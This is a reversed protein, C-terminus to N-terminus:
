REYVLKKIDIINSEWIKEGDLSHVNVAITIYNEKKTNVGTSDPNFMKYIESEKGILYGAYMAREQVVCVWVM